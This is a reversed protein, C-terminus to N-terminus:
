LTTRDRTPRVRVWETSLPSGAREHYVTVLAAVFRLAEAHSAVRLTTVDLECGGTAFLLDVDTGWVNILVLDAVDRAPRPQLHASADTRVQPGAVVIRAPTRPVDSAPQM